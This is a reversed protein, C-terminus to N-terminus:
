GRLPGAIRVKIRDSPVIITSDTQIGAQMM